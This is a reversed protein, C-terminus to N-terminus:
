PLCDITLVCHVWCGSSGHGARRLARKCMDKFHHRIIVQFLVATAGQEIRNKFQWDVTANHRYRITPTAFCHTSNRQGLITPLMLWSTSQAMWTIRCKTM